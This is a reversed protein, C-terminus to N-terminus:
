LCLVLGLFKIQAQGSLTEEMDEARQLTNERDFFAGCVVCACRSAEKRIHRGPGTHESWPPTQPKEM